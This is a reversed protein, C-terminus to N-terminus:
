NLSNLRNMMTMYMFDDNIGGMGGYLSQQMAMLQQPTMTPQMYAFPNTSGTDFTGGAPNFGFQQQQQQQLQALQEQEEMKKLRHTIVTVVM